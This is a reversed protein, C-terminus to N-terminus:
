REEAILIQSCTRVCSAKEMPLKVSALLPGVAEIFVVIWSKGQELDVTGVPACYKKVKNKPHNNVLNTRPPTHRVQVEGYVFYLLEGNGLV